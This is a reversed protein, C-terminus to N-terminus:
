PGWLYEIADCDSRLGPVDRNQQELLEEDVGLIRIGGTLIAAKEGLAGM